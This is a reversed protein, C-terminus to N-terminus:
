HHTGEADGMGGGAMAHHLIKGSQLAATISQRWEYEVGSQDLLEVPGAAHHESATAAGSGLAGDAVGLQPM